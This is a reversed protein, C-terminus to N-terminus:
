VVRAADGMSARKRAIPDQEAQFKAKAAEVKALRYGEKEEPSLTAVYARERAAEKDAEAEAQAELELKRAELLRDLRQQSRMPELLQAVGDLKAPPISAAEDEIREIRERELRACERIRRHENPDREIAVLEEYAKGALPNVDNVDPM